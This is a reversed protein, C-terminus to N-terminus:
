ILIDIGSKKPKDKDNKKDEKNNSKKKKGSGNYENNGKEKADYRYETDDSKDAKTPKYQDHVIMEQYNKSVQDQAQSFRQNEIHKVQSAEQSRLIDIPNFDM